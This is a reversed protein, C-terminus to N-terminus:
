GPMRCVAMWCGWWWDKDTGDFWWRQWLATFHAELWEHVDAQRSAYVHLGDCLLKDIQDWGSQCDRWWAAQQLLSVQCTEDGRSHSHVGRVVLECTQSKEAVWDQHSNMMYATLWHGGVLYISKGEHCTDDTAFEPIAEYPMAAMRLWIPLWVTWAPPDRRPALRWLPTYREVHRTMIVHSIYSRQHSALSYTILLFSYKFIFSTRDLIM